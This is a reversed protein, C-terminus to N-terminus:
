LADVIAKALPSFNPSCISIIRGQTAKVVTFVSDAYSPEM